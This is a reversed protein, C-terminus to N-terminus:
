NRRRRQIKPPAPKPLAIPEEEVTFKKREKSGADFALWTRCNVKKDCHYACRSPEVYFASGDFVKKVCDTPPYSMFGGKYQSEPQPRVPRTPREISSTQSQVEVTVPQETKWFATRAM